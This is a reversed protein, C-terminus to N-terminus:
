RAALLTSRTGAPSILHIALDGRRNYSLTLRAQVHELRSIYSAKGRCADVQQRVELRKGIDRCFSPLLCALGAQSLCVLFRGRVPGGGATSLGEGDRKEQLSGELLGSNAGPRSLPPFERSGPWPGLVSEGGWVLAM